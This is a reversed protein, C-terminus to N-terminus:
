CIQKLAESLIENATSSKVAVRVYRDDLCDFNSCDRVM